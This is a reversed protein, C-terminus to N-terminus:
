KVFNIRVPNSLLETHQESTATKADLASAPTKAPMLFADLRAYVLMSEPVTSLGELVNCEFKVANKAAPGGEAIVAAYESGMPQEDRRMKGRVVVPQKEFNVNPKISLTVMLKEPYPPRVTITAMALRDRKTEMNDVTIGTTIAEPPVTASLIVGAEVDGVNLSPEVPAALPPQVGKSADAPAPAPKPAEPKSGSCAPLVLLAVAVALCPCCWRFRFRTNM